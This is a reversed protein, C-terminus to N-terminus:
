NGNKKKARLKTLRNTAEPIYISQPYETILTEYAKAAKGDEKIKEENLIGWDLIAKDTLIDQPYNNFLKTYFDEAETYKKQVTKIEAKKVLVDDFIPHTLFMTNISDLSMLASDYKERICLFEARAFVELASYSSDPDANERLFFWLRFAKNSILRSPTGRLINLQSKALEFEGMLYALHAAQFRAQQGAPDEPLDNGIQAYVIAAEWPDGSFLCMGALDSKIGALITPHIGPMEAATRLMLRGEEGKNLLYVRLWALDSILELSRPNFGSQELLSLYDKELQDWSEHGNLKGAKAQNVKMKLIAQWASLYLPHNRGNKTLENFCNEALDYQEVEAALRGLSLLRSGNDVAKRGLLIAQPYALPYDKSLIAYWFLMESFVVADPDKQHRSILSKRLYANNEESGFQSFQYQFRSQVSGVQQPNKGVIDLYLESMKEFEGMAEYTSAIDFSFVDKNGIIEQGKLYTELAYENLFKMRFTAALNNVEQPYKELDKIAERFERQAAKSEGQFTYVYGLDAKFRPQTPYKKIEKKVLKEAAKLEKTELLCQLYYPYYNSSNKQEHLAEFLPLANVFDRKQYLQFALQEDNIGKQTDPIEQAYVFTGLLYLLIVWFFKM